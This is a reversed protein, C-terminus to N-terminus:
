NLETTPPTNGRGPANDATHRMLDMSLSQKAMQIDKLTSMRLTAANVRESWGERMQYMMVGIRMCVNTESGDEMKIYTDSALDSNPNASVFRPYKRSYSVWFPLTMVNTGGVMQVRQYDTPGWANRFQTSNVTQDFFLTNGKIRFPIHKRDRDNDWVELIRKDTWYAHTLDMSDIQDGDVLGIDTGELETFEVIPWMINMQGTAENWFQRFQSLNIKRHFAMVRVSATREGDTDLVEPAVAVLTIWWTNLDITYDTTPTLTVWVPAGYTGTNKMVVPANATIDCIPYFTLEWVKSVGDGYIEDTFGMAWNSFRTNFSEWINQLTRM